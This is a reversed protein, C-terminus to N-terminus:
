LVVSTTAIAITGELNHAGRSYTYSTEGDRGTRERMNADNGSEDPMHESGVTSM